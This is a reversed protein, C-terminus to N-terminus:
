MFFDENKYAKHFNIWKKYYGSFQIISERLTFNIKLFM